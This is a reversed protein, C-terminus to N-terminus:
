FRGNVRRRLFIEFYNTNGDNGPIDRLVAEPCRSFGQHVSGGCRLHREPHGFDDPEAGGSDYLEGPRPEQCDGGGFQIREMMGFSYGQLPGGEIQGEVNMPNVARAWKMVCLAAFPDFM